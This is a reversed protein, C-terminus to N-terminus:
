QVSINNNKIFQLAANKEATKVNSGTATIKPYGQVELSVYFIPSHEEGTKKILIYKPIGLKAKQAWEQILSKPNFVSHIAEENYNSLYPQWLNLVISTTTEMNSDLYIAAIVAELADAVLSDEKIHQQTNIYKALNIDDTVKLLVVQSTVYSLFKALYGENKNSFNNYLYEAIIFGLIRDGLFEMCENNKASVSSHKLATELYEQRKFNYNIAKELNNLQVM